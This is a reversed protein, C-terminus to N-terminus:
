AIVADYLRTGGREYALREALKDVFVQLQESQSPRASSKSRGREAVPPPMSGLPDAELIYQLHLETLASADAAAASVPQVVDNMAQSLQPSTQQVTRNQGEFPNQM